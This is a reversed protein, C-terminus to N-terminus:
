NTILINKIVSGNVIKIEPLYFKEEYEKQTEIPRHTM